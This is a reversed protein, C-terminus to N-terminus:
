HTHSHIHIIHVIQFRYQPVKLWRSRFIKSEQVNRPNLFSVELITVVRAGSSRKRTQLPGLPDVFQMKKSVVFAEFVNYFVPNPARRVMWFVFGLFVDKKNFFM